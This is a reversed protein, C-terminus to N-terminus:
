RQLIISNLQEDGLSLAYEFGTIPHLRLWPQNCGKNFDVKHRVFARLTDYDRNGIATYISTHLGDLKPNRANAKVGPNGMLYPDAGRSLLLDVLSANKNDVALELPTWGQVFTIYLRGSSYDHDYRDPSRVNVDIGSELLFQVGEFDNMKVAYQLAPLGLENQSYKAVREIVAQHTAMAEAMMRRQGARPSTALPILNVTTEEQEPISLNIQVTQNIAYGVENEILITMIIGTLKHTIIAFPACTM